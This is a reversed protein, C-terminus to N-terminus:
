LLRSYEYRFQVKHCRARLDPEIFVQQPLNELIQHTVTDIRDFAGANDPNLGVHHLAEKNNAHFIRAAANRRLNLGSSKSGKKVVFACPVPRPSAVECCIMKSCLPCRTTSLWPPLPDM